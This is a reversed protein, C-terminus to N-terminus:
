SPRFKSRDFDASDPIVTRLYDTSKGVRVLSDKFGQQDFSIQRVIDWFTAGPTRDYSKVSKAFRSTGPPHSWHWGVMHRFLRTRLLKQRKLSRDTVDYVTYSGKWDYEPEWCHEGPDWWLHSVFMDEDTLDFWYYRNQIRVWGELNHDYHNCVNKFQVPIPPNESM